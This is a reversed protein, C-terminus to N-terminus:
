RMRRKPGSGGGNDDAGRFPRVLQESLESLSDFGRDFPPQSRVRGGGSVKAERLMRNATELLELPSAEGDWEVVGVSVGPGAATIESIADQAGALLRRGVKDADRGGTEPLVVMFEDGGFRGVQDYRRAAFTLANGTAKLVANGEVLGASENVAHLGDLDVMCVSLRHGRRHSRQVECRLAEMVASYSLCGTLPDFSRSALAAAVSGDDGTMCLAALRAYADTAWVLEERDQGTPPEFGAYIVGIVQEASTVPAAVARHGAGADADHSEVLARESEFARVLLSDSTWSVLPTRGERAWVAPKQNQKNGRPVLMANDAGVSEAFCQLLVEFSRGRLEHAFTIGAQPKPTASRGM